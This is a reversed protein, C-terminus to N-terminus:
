KAVERRAATRERRQEWRLKINQTLGALGTPCLIMIVVVILGFIINLYSELSRLLEPLITIVFSGLVVGIISNFGGTMVMIVVNTAANVSFISSGIFGNIYVYLGGALAAMVAQIVFAYVKTVVVNIGLTVAVTPSSKIANLSRGLKTTRLRAIFLGCVTIVGLLFYFWKRQNDLVFGFLNLKPVGTIGYSGGMFKTQTFICSMVSVFGLTAFTFFTGSLRNLVLGLFFAAAGTAAMAILLVLLTNEITVGFQGTTLGAVLGAGLGMFAIFSFTLTGSMSLMIMLALALIANDLSVNVVKLMYNTTHGPVYVAFVVVLAFIILHTATVKKRINKIRKLSNKM